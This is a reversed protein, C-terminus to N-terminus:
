RENPFFSSVDFAVDPWAEPSIRSGCLVRMCTEYAGNQPRRHVELVRDVLNVVWYEPIQADAYLAAKETMDYRLSSDALEIVLLAKTEPTGYSEVDPNSCVVIDPEPESDLDELGLPAELYVTARGELAKFFVTFVKTAAVVHKRRKPSMQRIVGRILEVREGPALIGAEGMLHYEEVTFRRQELTEMPRPMDDNYRGKRRISSIRPPFGGEHQDRVAHHFFHIPRNPGDSEGGAPESERELAEEPGVEAVVGADGRAV